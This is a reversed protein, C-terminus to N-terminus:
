LVGEGWAITLEAEDVVALEAMLRRFAEGSAVVARKRVVPHAPDDEDPVALWGRRLGVLLCGQTDEETNGPHILIRSRGPVVTVEFTEYGHKRYITRHLHYAGAPICSEAPQNDRWDDECTHLTLPGCTLLGFTGDATRETRLLQLQIV